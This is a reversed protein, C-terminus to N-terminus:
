VLSRSPDVFPSADDLGIPSGIPNRPPKEVLPRREVDERRALPRM